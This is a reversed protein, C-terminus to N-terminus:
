PYRFRRVGSILAWTATVVIVSIIGGLILTNAPGIQQSMFGVQITGLNNASEASVEHFSSARGRIDDPTTLQVVTQRTAMGIADTFGLAAIVPVAVLMSTSFGFVILLLGYAFTAYLVLMGKSRYRALFLVAMSGVVGGFSNVATLTGVAGPGARLLRDVILPLVQRFYSVMNVGLDMILLGPLIPHSRVFQFGQWVRSLIKEDRVANTSTNQSRIMLPFLVSPVASVTAVAFTTTTGFVTILGTFALPAVISGIESTAANSTVAHLLHTRPVVNATLASRAPSGLTSTMALIATVAYIHWPRLADSASLLAMAALLLFSFVQMGSILKKRDLRDALVGGYLIAPFQVVLQILGLIGLQVGSGTEQYLWVGTTLLRMQMTFM